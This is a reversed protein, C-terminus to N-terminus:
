VIGSFTNEDFAFRGKGDLSDVLQMDKASIEFGFLQTNELIRSKRVSKPIIAFGKQLHWRLTAQAPSVGYHEAIEAMLPEEELHSHFIPGWSTVLIDKKQCYAVNERQQRWPHLEIQNIPPVVGFHAILDELHHPMFNSVSACRIKKQEQLNQLTEWTKYRLDVDVGPWHLLYADIYDLGLLGLSEGFAALPRSFETPWMKTTVFIEERPIGSERVARGVEKENHYLTATDIHRYGVELAYRVANYTEDNEPNALYVGLGICPMELGNILKKKDSLSEAM